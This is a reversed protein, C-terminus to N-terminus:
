GRRGEAVKLIFASSQGSRGAHHLQPRDIEAVKLSFTSGSGKLKREEWDEEIKLNFISGM